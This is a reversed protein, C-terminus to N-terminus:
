GELLMLMRSIDMETVAGALHTKHQQISLMKEEVSDKIIFRYVQVPRTQGLRHIRDIAQNEVSENWWPDFLVARAAMTMNIGVGAARLSAILVTRSSDTRFQELVTDRRKQAMSGDLRLFGFGHDQLTAEINAMMSTWQTFVVTKISGDERRVDSLIRVLAKLKTSLSFKISSLKLLMKQDDCNSSSEFSRLVKLLESELCVSRCVPCEIQGSGARELMDMVCAHCVIHMCPLIVKASTSEFCIPCENNGGSAVDGKVSDAFDRTAGSTNPYYKQILDSFSTLTQEDNSSAEELTDGKILNPHDCAQRLRALLQFVHTYQIQGAAKLQTIKRKSHIHLAGYIEREAKSFELYVIEVKKDPLQVIPNGNEDRMNKTRRLLIPEMITQIVKLAKKRQSVDSFPVSVFNKFYSYQRWPRIRLFSILSYLDDLRNVVPTGSVGWRNQSLLRKSAKAAKTQREKIYHCEDLIVRWWSVNFLPSESEGFNFDGDGYESTLTGYTTIVIVPSNALWRHASKEKRETGYYMEVLGDQRGLCKSIESEWQGIVAMPVVILTSNIKPIRITDTAAEQSFIDFINSTRKSPTRKQLRPVSFYKEDSGPRRNTHILSICVITKGLGMEDALIGGACHEEIPKELSLDGSYPSFYIVAGDPTILEQWLSSLSQSTTESSGREKAIMFALAQKQYNRLDINMNVPEFSPLTQHMMQSKRYIEQLDDETVEQEENAAEFAMPHDLPMPDDVFVPHLGVREFLSCIATRRIRMSNMHNADDEVTSGVEEDREFARDILFVKFSVILEDFVKFNSHDSLPILTPEFYCVQQDMLCSIHQALESELKAFEVPHYQRENTNVDKCVRVITNQTNGAKSKSTSKASERSLKCTYTGPLPWAGLSGKVTCLATAIFEGVFVKKCPEGASRPKKPGKAIPSAAMRKSSM